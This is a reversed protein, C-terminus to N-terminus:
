IFRNKRRNLVGDVVGWFVAKLKKIKQDEALIVQLIRLIFFEKIIVRYLLFNGGYEPYEKWLRIYNCLISYTRFPSYNSATFGFISKAPAGFVQILDCQTDLMYKYGNRNLRFCVEIDVSDIEYDERFGGVSKVIAVDYISGSTIPWKIEIFNKDVPYEHNPNVCFSGIDKQNLHNLIRNKYESFHNTQFLSDQDMSLLHTFDNDIAWNIAYNLPYAIFHNQNDSKYIIKQSYTAFYESVFSSNCSSNDWIILQDVDDIYQSVNRKLDEINPHYIIVIALLRM